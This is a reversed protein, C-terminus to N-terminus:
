VRAEGARPVYVGGYPDVLLLSRLLMVDFAYWDSTPAYARAPAPRAAARAGLLPDRSREPFLRGGLRAFDFSAAAIVHAEAGAVLVNLDNFDGIVVGAAHLAVLTTRLDRFVAAVRDGAGGTRRSAPESLRLLVDAGPVLRMAYGLIRGDRATAVAQ